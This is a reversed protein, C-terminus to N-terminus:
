LAARWGSSCHTRSHRCPGQKCGLLRFLVAEIRHDGQVKEANNTETGRSQAQGETTDKAGSQKLKRRQARSPMQDQGYLQKGAFIKARFPVQDSCVIVMDEREAMHKVRTVIGKLDEESGFALRWMAEDFHQGAM